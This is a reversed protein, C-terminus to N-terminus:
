RTDFEIAGSAGHGDVGFDVVRIESAKKAVIIKAMDKGQFANGFADLIRIIKQVDIGTIEDEGKIFLPDVFPVQREEKPQHLVKCSVSQITRLRHPVSMATREAPDGPARRRDHGKEFTNPTSTCTGTTASGDAIREGLQMPGAGIKGSVASVSQAKVSPRNEEILRVPAGVIDLM